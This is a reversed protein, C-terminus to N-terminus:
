GLYVLVCQLVKQQYVNPSSTKKVEDIDGRELSDVAENAAKVIPLAMALEADAQDKMKTIDAAEKM